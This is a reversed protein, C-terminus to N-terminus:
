SPQDATARHDQCLEQIRELETIRRQLRTVMPEAWRPADGGLLPGDCIRVATDLLSRAQRLRGSRFARVGRDLFQEFAVVDIDVSDPRLRLARTGCVPATWGEDNGLYSHLRHLAGTLATDAEREDSAPWIWHALLERAVSRGGALALAVLLNTAESDAAVEDSVNQGHAFVEIAGFLRVRVSAEAQSVLVDHAVDGDSVNVGFSALRDALDTARSRHDAAASRLVAALETRTAWIPDHLQHWRRAAAILAASSDTAVVAALTDAEAQARVDGNGAAAAAAEAAYNQAQWTDGRALWVWGVALLALPSSADRELLSEVQAFTQALWPAECRVLGAASALAAEKIDGAREQADLYATRAQGIDGRARHVDGVVCWASAIRRSGLGDFYDGAEKAHLLAQDLKGSVSLVQARVLLTEAYDASTSPIAALARDAEFLAETTRGARLHHKARAIRLKGPSLGVRDTANFAQRYHHEYAQVNGRQDEVKAALAAAAAVEGDTRATGLAETAFWAAADLDGSELAVTGRITASEVTTANAVAADLTKSAEHLEGRLLHVAAVREPDARGSGYAVLAGHTDGVAVLAEALLQELGDPPVLYTRLAEVVLAPDDALLSAGHERLMEGLADKAGAALLGAVARRIQGSAVMVAAVEAADNEDVTELVASRLVPVLEVERGRGIALGRAVLDALPSATSAFAAEQPSVPAAMAVRGLLRKTETDEESLVQEAVTALAGGVSLHRTVDAPTAIVDGAWVLEVLPTVFGPWGGTMAVILEAAGRHEPPLLAEVQAPHFALEHADLAVHAGRSHGQTALSLDVRSSVVMRIKSGPVAVIQHLLAVSESGALHDAEDLVLSAPSSFPASVVMDVLAEMSQGPARTPQDGTLAMALRRAFVGPDRDSAEVTLWAAHRTNAWTALTTSKGYGRAGTITTLPRAVARDLTAHIQARPVHVDM